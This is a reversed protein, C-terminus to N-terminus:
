VRGLPVDDVMAARDEHARMRMAAAGPRQGQEVAARREADIGGAELLEVGTRDPDSERAAVAPLRVPEDNFKPPQQPAM